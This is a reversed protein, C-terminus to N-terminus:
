SYDIGCPSTLSPAEEWVQDLAYYARSEALFLHVFIGGADVVIWRAEEGKGQVIPRVGRNKCAEEVAQCLAWLHRSTSVSAVIFYDAFLTSVKFWQVDVAKRDELLGLLDNRWAELRKEVRKEVM